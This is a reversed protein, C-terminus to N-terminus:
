RPVLDQGDWVRMREIVDGERLQDLVDMGDVVQAFVTYRGDLQPQPSHTIFFQSGGTDRWDLAMGVTGRLFPRQNLEDRLTFGPGGESDSRPDGGQVVYNYIVRHFTLGDYYGSRALTVFSETTQPADLVALELQITGHETELYVHPSVSPNIIHEATYSLSPRRPAPRIRASYDEDPEWRNLADAARIRVAWEGDGLGLRLTQRALSGDINALAELIAARALYVPDAAASRYAAALVEEAKPSKVQALLQAATKRVVVDDRQLAAILVSELGPADQAALASLVSPVVRQDVDTLMATLRPHAIEPPVHQLAVATAARVQWDPDPELGSLVLMFTEPDAQALARVAAARLPPWPYTMLEVFIPIADADPRGRLAQVAEVRLTPDLDPTLVFRRLAATAREDEIRALARIATAVVRDNRRDRDLLRVLTDIAVPDRLAGLGQAALAVGVTGQVSALNVLATLTRPDELRQLAYSVPWWWLIPQGNEQLVAAAIPEFAQLEALAYLGLRFAEVEPAQPYSLDEPDVEFASTVYRAVVEGIAPAADVAGIRGLAHAARGQVVPSPDGLARVLMESASPDGILGLAFASMQRVEVQPDFLSATLPAVGETRGVRGIALAARRRLQPEADALLDLLDPKPRLLM